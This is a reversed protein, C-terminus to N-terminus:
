VRFLASGDHACEIIGAAICHVTCSYMLFQSSENFCNPCNRQLRYVQCEIRPMILCTQLMLILGRAHSGNSSGPCACAVAVKSSSVLPIRELRAASAPTTQEPTTSPQSLRKEHAPIRPDNRPWSLVTEPQRDIAVVFDRNNAKCQPAQVRHM